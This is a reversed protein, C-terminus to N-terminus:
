HGAVRVALAAIDVESTTDVRVVKGIAHPEARRAWDDWVTALREADEYMASRRRAEVRSRAVDAPVDCWVEVIEPEGCRRWAAETFGLDRPRFWWSELVVTGPADAALSWAAEMAIPGLVGPRATPVAAYLAEKVADKAIVPVGLATGLAAALTSKGSGPLGNVLIVRRAV